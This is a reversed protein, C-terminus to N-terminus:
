SMIKPLCCKQYFWFNKRMPLFLLRKNGWWRLKDINDALDVWTGLQCTIAVSDNTVTALLVMVPGIFFAAVILMISFITAAIRLIRNM